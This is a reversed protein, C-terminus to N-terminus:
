QRRSDHTEGGKGLFEELAKYIDGREKLAVRMFHPDQVQGLTRYMSSWQNDESGGHYFYYSSNYNIEGYGIMRVMPLLDRVHELVRQNDDGWNDGDSFHFVYNNFQSVPHREPITELALKYASSCKTGGDNSIKFFDEEEVIKAETDHAVFVLEVTDYKLRLFQVMWFFFGKAIYKRENDMSGSRDMMMYVAAQSAYEEEEHEVKFRMDTEHFGGIQPEGKAANRKLNNLLTRKKDLNAILGKQRIDDYKITKSKVKKQREKDELWPLQLDELMMKVLEDVTFEAEYVERGAQDGAQGAGKPNANGDSGIVDGVEGEGQGVGDGDNKGYRFRYQDLYRIPIKLKKNGNSTIISEEAILDKLNDRIAERVREDHRLSDKIARRRLDWPINYGIYM